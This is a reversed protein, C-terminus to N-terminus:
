CYGNFLMGSYPSTVYPTIFTKGPNKYSVMIRDVYQMPNLSIQNTKRLLSAAFDKVSQISTESQDESVSQKLLDDDVSLTGDKNTRVGMADLDNRYMFSLGNMDGVLKRGRSLSDSYRNAAQIFSNYGNVLTHVNDTLSDLDTKLGIVTPSDEEGSIGTLTIEFM